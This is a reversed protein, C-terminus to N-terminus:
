STVEVEAGLARLTGVFRPFSVAICDADRVRSPGDATLALVAASMAVRHDGGSDVDAAALPRDPIGEVLMGDPREEARVGFAALLRVMAAIRDSEKHRLEAADCVTSVGRARAALACLIPVEDIARPVLEGGLRAAGLEGSEACLDAVPEGGEDGRPVVQVRAGMDRLVELLGTRTPNVGVGRVDVRSKTVLLGAAVLFAAASVDGPVRLDFAPLTRDWGSPDLQVMAGICSIPVELARLM